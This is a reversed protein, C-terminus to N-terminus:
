HGDVWVPKTHKGTRARYAREYLNRRLSEGGNQVVYEFVFDRKNRIRSYYYQGIKNPHFEPLTETHTIGGTAHDLYFLSFKGQTEPGAYGVSDQKHHLGIKIALPLSIGNVFASPEHGWTEDERKYHGILRAYGLGHSRLQNHLVQMNARNTAPPNSDRWATLMAFSTHGSQLHHQYVRSLSAESLALGDGNVLAEVITELSTM